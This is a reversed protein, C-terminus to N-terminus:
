KGWISLMYYSLKKKKKETLSPNSSLTEVVQAVSWDMKCQNNQSLTKLVKQRLQGQVAIRGIDAGL